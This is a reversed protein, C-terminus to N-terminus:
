AGLPITFYFVTGQDLRSELFMIGGHSEVIGKAIALGLGTGKESDVPHLQKFKSFLDPIKEPAIGSGSDSVFVLISPGFAVLKPPNGFRWKVDGSSTVKAASVIIKGGDPSFKIANSLLNNLVQSIRDRDFQASLNSDVGASLTLSHQAALPTFFAVRDALVESLNGPAKTVEFKGAEIKAVDLLDNVLALMTQASNQVTKLLEQGSPENALGPNKLFMDTSGRVVTLPARLEHVMMATFEDRLRELQKQATRDHFAVVTGLRTQNRDKVPTILLRSVRDGILIDEVTVLKDSANSEQIKTQLGVRSALVKAIDFITPKPNPSLGLLSVAAPNIVLLNLDRDLMLVGDAMSNVMANLKEQEAAIVKELNNVARNAQTLIQVLVEMERGRYLGATKSGVAVVGLGRNNITLPAIWLSGIPCSNKEDVITGTITPKLDSVAFKKPTIKALAELMHDRVTDLFKQNVSEELHSRFEVTIEDPSILMYGVASYPILKSLSSIITDLIKGINLEYGIREGIERLILTEYIRQSIEIKQKELDEEHRRMQWLAALLTIILAPALVLFTELGITPLM